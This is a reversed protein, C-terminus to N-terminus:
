ILFGMEQMFRIPHKSGKKCNCTPCLLQINRIRNSGGKVLPIIHDRHYGGEISKRCVACLCKQRALLRKVEEATHRGEAGRTRARRNAKIASVAEPHAKEWTTKAARVKGPHIKEWAVISARHKEPHATRWAAQDARAKETNAAYWALAAARLKEKNAQYYASNKSRAKELNAKYQEAKAARIEDRHKKRYTANYGRQKQKKEEDTM